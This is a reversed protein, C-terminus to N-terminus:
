IIDANMTPLNRYMKLSINPLTFKFNSWKGKGSEVQIKGGHRETFEKCLLLGLGFSSKSAHFVRGSRTVMELEGALSKGSMINNFFIKSTKQEKVVIAGGGAAELEEATAYEFM